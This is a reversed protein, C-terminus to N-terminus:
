MSKASIAIVIESEIYALARDVKLLLDDISRSDSSARDVMIDHAFQDVSNWYPISDLYDERTVAIRKSTSSEHYVWHIDQSIRYLKHDNTGVWNDLFLKRGEVELYHKLDESFNAGSLWHIDMASDFASERCKNINSKVTCFNEKIDSRRQKIGEPLRNIEQMSLNWFAHKAIELEFASIYDLMHIMSHLYIVFQDYASHKPYSLKINKIQLMAIYAPGYVTRAADSLEKFDVKRADNAPDVARYTALPDDQHGPWFKRCFRDYAAQAKAVRWDPMENVGICSLSIPLNLALINVLPCLGVEKVDKLTAQESLDEMRQISCNDLNIQVINNSMAMGIIYDPTLQRHNEWSFRCPKIFQIEWNEKHEINEKVSMTNWAMVQNSQPM